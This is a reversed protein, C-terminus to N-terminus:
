GAPTRGSRPADRHLESVRRNVAALREPTGIDFWAGAYCEGSVQGAAIARHLLPALPFPGPLSGAFLAPRYVGIGSFTLRAPGDDCVRGNELAFDGQPHHAPNDVLVLHALNEPQRPLTTFDFDTWIDANVVLFPSEGLLPLANFIGGGTELAGPPEASYDIHVGYVSGDGLAEILRAGLYAHNVVLERIGARALAEIHHEILTHGAVRLLPKPTHDTLPRM